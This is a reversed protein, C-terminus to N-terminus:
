RSLPIVKCHFGPPGEKLLHVDLIHPLLFSGGDNWQWMSCVYGARLGSSKIRIESCPHGDKPPSFLTGCSEGVNFQLVVNIFGECEEVGNPVVRVIPLEAPM